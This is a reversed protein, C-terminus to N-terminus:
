VTLDATAGTWTTGLRISIRNRASSPFYIALARGVRRHMAKRGTCRLDSFSFFASLVSHTYWGHFLLMLTNLGEPDEISALLALLAEDLPYFLQEDKEEEVIKILANPIVTLRKRLANGAATVPAALARANFVGFRTCLRLLVM